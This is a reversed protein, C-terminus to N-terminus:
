QAAMCATQTAEHEAECDPMEDMLLECSLASLCAFEAEFAAVCDAGYNMEYYAHAYACVEANYAGDEPTYCMGVLDGYAACVEPIAPGGSSEEQGATTDAPAETTGGPGETSGGGMTTDSPTDTTAPTDTTTPSGTTSPADTAAETDSGDDGAIVCGVSLPAASLLFLLNQVRTDKMEM